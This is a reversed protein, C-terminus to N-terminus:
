HQRPPPGPPRQAAAAGAAGGGRRQRYEALLEARNPARDLDTCAAYSHAGQCYYCPGLNLGGGGGAGRGVAPLAMAAAQAAGAAAVPPAGAGAGSAVSGRGITGMHAAIGALTAPPMEALGTLVSRALPSAELGKLAADHKLGLQSRVRALQGVGQHLSSLELQVTLAAQLAEARLEANDPGAPLAAALAGTAQASQELARTRAVVRQHFAEPDLRARKFGLSDALSSLPTGQTLAEFRIYTM